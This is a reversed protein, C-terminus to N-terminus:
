EECTLNVTAITASKPEIGAVTCGFMHMSQDLHKPTLCFVQEGAPNPVSAITQECQAQTFPGVFAGDTVHDAGPLISLILLYVVNM